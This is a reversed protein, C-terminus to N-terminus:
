FKDKVVPLCLLYVVNREDNLPTFLTSGTKVNWMTETTSYSFDDQQVPDVADISQGQTM